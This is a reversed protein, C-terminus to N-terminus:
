DPLKKENIKRELLDSKLGLEKAKKWQELAPAADGLRYLIDGYHDFQVASNGNSKIAKQIWVLAEKYNKRRFLVWAYTDEFSANGPLLENSKKSMRDAEDLKESRVSLYYAYNNLTYANDPFLQLSQRFAEDSEPFKKLSNYADGLAAYVQARFSNDDTNLDLANKLYSVAKEQKGSQAYAAGTFFYLPAQNPYLTLAEEGDAIAGAYDFLSIDLQVLQEWIAYVEADLRLAKRYSQRAEALKQAQFLVDGNISFAKPDSPHAKTMLDTLAITQELVKADRFRPFQALVLQVKTDIDMQPNSFASKMASFRESQRNTSNYVEALSLQLYPNDPALAKAKELVELAKQSNGSKLYLSSLTFYNKLDAPNSKV